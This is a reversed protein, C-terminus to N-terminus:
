RRGSSRRGGGRRDGRRGSDHAKFSYVPKWHDIIKATPKILRKIQRGDKYAMPSEDLTEPRVSTSYIGTMRRTFESMALTAFASKRSCIRGAGHPASFNWDEQGTGTCLLIGDAMNNRAWLYRSNMLKEGFTM